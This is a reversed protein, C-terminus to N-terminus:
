GSSKTSGTHTNSSTDAAIAIPVRKEFSASRRSSAQIAGADKIPATSPTVNSTLRGRCAVRMPSPANKSTYPIYVSRWPAGLPVTLARHAGTEPKTPPAIPV